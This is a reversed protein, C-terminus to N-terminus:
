LGVVAPEEAGPLRRGPVLVGLDVGQQGLRALREVLALALRKVLIGRADDDVVRGVDPDVVRDPLAGEAIADLAHHERRDARELRARDIQLLTPAPGPPARRRTPPLMALFIRITVPPLRPM